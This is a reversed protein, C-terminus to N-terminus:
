GYGKAVLVILVDSANVSNDAINDAAFIFDRLQIIAVPDITRPFKFLEALLAAKETDAAEEYEEVVRAGKVVGKKNTELAKVLGELSALSAMLDALFKAMHEGKLIELGSGDGATGLTLLRSADKAAQAVTGIEGLLNLIDERVGGFFAGEAIRSDLDRRMQEAQSELQFVQDKLSQVSPDSTAVASVLNEFAAVCGKVVRIHDEVGQM